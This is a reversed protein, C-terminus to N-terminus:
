LCDSVVRAVSCCEASFYYKAGKGNIFVAAAMEVMRILRLADKSIKQCDRAFPLM